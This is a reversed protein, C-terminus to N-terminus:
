MFLLYHVFWHLVLAIQCALSNSINLVTFAQVAAASINIAAFVKRTLLYFGARMFSIYRVRM